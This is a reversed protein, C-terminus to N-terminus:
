ASVRHVSAMLLDALAQPQTLMADHGTSMSEYRWGPESKVRNKFPAFTALTAIGPQDCGIYTRRAIAKWGGKRYRVPQSFTGIPQGTLLPQVKAALDPPLGFFAAPPSPILFGSASKEAAEKSRSWNAAPLIAGMSQGDDPVFADLYVLSRIRDARHDAVGSVVMGGYSHGVLVFDRLSKEDILNVVARIHSDLDIQATANRADEAM